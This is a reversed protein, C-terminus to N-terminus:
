AQSPDEGTLTKDIISITSLFVVVWNANPDPKIAFHQVQQVKPQLGTLVNLNNTCMHLAWIELSKRVARSLFAVFTYQM